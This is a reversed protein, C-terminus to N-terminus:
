RLLLPRSYIKALLYLARDRQWSLKFRASICTGSKVLLNIDLVHIYLKNSLHELVISGIHEKVKFTLVRSVRRRGNGLM